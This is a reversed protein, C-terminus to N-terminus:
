ALATNVHQQSAEFHGCFFSHLRLSKLLWDLQFGPLLVKLSVNELM